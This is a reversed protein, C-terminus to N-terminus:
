IKIRGERLILPPDVSVDIVTSAEGLKCKGGDILLDADIKVEEASIPESLGSLNASSAALPGTEKILKLLWDHKPMRIGVSGGSRAKFVLTLPGPWHKKMVERAKPSIDLALSEAQKLDAILIQLPKDLPRKKVEYIRKIGPENSVLTGIGYVTETPFIIVGGSKLVDHAKKLSGDNPKLHEM